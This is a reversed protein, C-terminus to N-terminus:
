AAFVVGRFSNRLQGDAFTALIRCEFLQAWATNAYILLGSEAIAMSEPFLQVAALLVALVPHTDTRLEAM